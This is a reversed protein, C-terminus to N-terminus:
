SYQLHWMNMGWQEVTHTLMDQPTPTLTLHEKNRFKGIHDREDACYVAGHQFDTVM